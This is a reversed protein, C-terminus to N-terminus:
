LSLTTMKVDSVVEGLQTAVTEVHVESVEETTTVSVESTLDGVELTANVQLASDADIALGTKKQPKFGALEITLEYRGVPLSPFTYLGQSDTIAKFQTGLAVNTLTLTAGPIVGGTTDKITGSISGGVTAYLAIAFCPILLVSLVLDSRRSFM